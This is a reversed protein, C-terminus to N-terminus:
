QGDLGDAIVMGITGTMHHCSSEAAQFMEGGPESPQVEHLHVCTHIVDQKILAASASGMSGFM